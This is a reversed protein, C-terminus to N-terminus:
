RRELVLAFKVTVPDKVKMTGLMLTPPKIGWETMRITKSGELQWTGQATRKATLEVAIPKEAGAMVLTGSTTVTGEDDGRPALEWKEIRYQIEKHANAKLAKRMHENMTGNRCDLKAVPVTLTARRAAASVEKASATAPVADGTVLAEVLTADCSWSRVSSGGEVWMRSGPQTGLTLGTEQAQVSAPLMLALVILGHEISRM